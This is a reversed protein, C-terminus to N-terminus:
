LDEDQANACAWGERQDEDSPHPHEGRFYAARGLDFYSNSEADTRGAFNRQTTHAAELANLVEKPWPSRRSHQGARYIQVEGGPSICATWTIGNITKTLLITMTTAGNLPRTQTGRAGKNKITDGGYLLDM